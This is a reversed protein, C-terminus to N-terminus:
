SGYDVELVNRLMQASNNDITGSKLAIGVTQAALSGYLCLFDPCKDQIALLHKQLTIGDGRSVPGTLAKISGLEMINEITKDMLPRFAKFGEKEDIGSAKFFAGAMNSLTVIYNSLVCAAAHYLAKDQKNLDIIESDLSKVVIRSISEAENDGEFGFYIGFLAKWSNERDAFTQLPHLSGTNGGRSKLPELVDSAEAGSCHLFVKNKIDATAVKEVIDSAAKELEKDPVTIFIVQSSCVTQLLNNTFSTKLISNLLSISEDSKSFAGSIEFGKSLLAAAMSCGVKGAGIIGIKM